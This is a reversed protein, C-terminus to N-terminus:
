ICLSSKEAEQGGKLFDNMGGGRGIRKGRSVIRETDAVQAVNATGSKKSSTQIGKNSTGKDKDMGEPLRYQSEGCALISRQM